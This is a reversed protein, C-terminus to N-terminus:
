SADTIMETLLLQMLICPNVKVHFAEEKDNVVVALKNREMSMEHNMSLDEIKKLSTTQVTEKIVKKDMNNSMEIAELNSGDKKGDSNHSIKKSM